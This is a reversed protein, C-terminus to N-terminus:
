KYGTLIWVYEFNQFSLLGAHHYSWYVIHLSIELRYMTCVVIQICSLSEHKKNLFASLVEFISNNLFEVFSLYYLPLFPSYVKPGCPLPPLKEFDIEENPHKQKKSSPLETKDKNSNKYDDRSSISHKETGWKQGKKKSTIGNWQFTDQCSFWSEIWHAVSAYIQIYRLVSIYLAKRSNNCCYSELLGIPTCFFMPLVLCHGVDSHHVFKYEWKLILEQFRKCTFRLM